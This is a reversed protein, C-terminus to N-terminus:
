PKSFRWHLVQVRLTRSDRKGRKVFNATKTHKNAVPVAAQVGVALKRPSEPTGGSAADVARSLPTAGGM